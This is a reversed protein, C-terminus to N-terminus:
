RLLEEPPAQEPASPVLTRSAAREKLRKAMAVALLALTLFVAAGGLAAIALNAFDLPVLGAFQAWTLGVGGLGLGTATWAIPRRKELRSARADQDQAVSLAGELGASFDIGAAALGALKGRQAEKERHRDRAKKLERVDRAIQWLGYGTAVTVVTAAAGAVTLIPNGLVHVYFPQAYLDKGTEDQVRVEMEFLGAGLPKLSSLDITRNVYVTFGPPISTNTETAKSLKEPAHAGTGTMLGVRITRIEWTTNPPAAIRMSLNAEHAPDVGIAARTAAADRLDHGDLTVVIGPEGGQLVTVGDQAGALPMLLAVAFLSLAVRM